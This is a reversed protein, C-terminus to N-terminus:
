AQKRDSIDRVILLVAPRGQYAIKTANVEVPIEHGDKHQFATKYIAPMDEGAIRKRYRESLKAAEDPAAFKLHPIGVLNEPKEGVLGALSPNVYRVEEDQFIAIGDNAREVLDRYTGEREILTEEARRQDTIDEVMEAVAVLRGDTDRVPSAVIRVSQRIYGRGVERVAEHAEGNEFTKRTPCDACLDDAPPDNFAKYCLPRQGLDIDPHRRQMFDNMSLVEMKPSIVSIGVGISDLVGGLMSRCKEEADRLSQQRRILRWLSHCAYTSALLVWCLIIYLIPRLLSALETGLSSVILVTMISLCLVALTWVLLRATQRASALAQTKEDSRAAPNQEAM